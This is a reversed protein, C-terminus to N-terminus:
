QSSESLKLHESISLSRTLYRIKIGGNGPEIGPAGAMPSVSASQGFHVGDPGACGRRALGAASTALTVDAIPMTRKARTTEIVEDHQFMTEHLQNSCIREGQERPSRTSAHKLPAQTYTNAPSAPAEAAPLLSLISRPRVPLCTSIVPPDFPMPSARACAKAASPACITM